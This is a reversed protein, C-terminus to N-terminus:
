EGREGWVERLARKAAWYGCMGHVGPGPPTSASCLYVGRIPTGHRRWTPRALMQRLSMAGAAIDGGVLNPNHSEIDAPSMVARALIRDRFGPAFREIQQEIRPAADNVSGRPVHCYGWAVHRGQPARSGDFVTPQSLLVFPREPERGSWADSEAAAVEELTGGLHLTGARHCEPDTWPIPGDLAWDVKFAGMGYRYRQLAGAFWSPLRHGVLRLFPRPSLDFLMARARPLDDISRISAGTVVEGGLSRLCSALADSIRQAGGRPFCWGGVHALLGLALTVGATPRVTLPLMSHAAIGAVLARAAGGSFTGRALRDASQFARVGFRAAAFPHRPWRIPGLVVDVLRPWDDCLTGFLSRYASGDVGLALATRDVSRYSFAGNVGDLPHAVMVDPEIWELGHEALPLQRFLPSAVALPHVASCVDHVFGPLTLEASRCSGGVTAAGEFVTVRRGARALVIAAALGNPGAGVVIADADAV